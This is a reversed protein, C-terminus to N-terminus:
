YPDHDDYGPSPPLPVSPPLPIHAPRPPPLRQENQAQIAAIREGNQQRARHNLMTALEQVQPADSLNVLRIIVVHDRANAQDSREVLRMDSQCASCAGSATFRYTVHGRKCPQGTFYRKSRTALALKRSNPLNM